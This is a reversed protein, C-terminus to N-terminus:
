CRSARSCCRIRGTPKSVAIPFDPRTTMASFVCALDFLGVGQVQDADLKHDPDVADNPGSNASFDALTLEVPQWVGAPAWFWATYDGGPKRESLLLAVATDHDSHVAFRIRQMSTLRGLVPLVAGAIKGTSPQYELSLAGGGDRGAGSDARVSAGPGMAAWGATDGKFDHSLIVGTQATAEFTGAILIGALVLVTRM